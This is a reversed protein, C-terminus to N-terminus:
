LMSTSQPNCPQLFHRGGNIRNARQDNKDITEDAKRDKAFGLIPHVKALADMVFDYRRLAAESFVGPRLQIPHKVVVPIGDITGGAMGDIHGFTRLM